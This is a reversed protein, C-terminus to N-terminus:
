RPSGSANGPWLRRAEALLIRSILEDHWSGGFELPNAALINEAERLAARAEGERGLKRYAMAQITFADATRLTIEGTQEAALSNQCAEIAPLYNGSRYEVLGLTVYSYVIAWDSPDRVAVRALGSITALNADNPPLLACAKAAKDAVDPTTTSQFQELLRTSFAHYAQEDGAHVYLPAARLWKLADQPDLAIMEASADIAEQWAGDRAHAIIQAEHEGIAARREVYRSVPIVIVLPLVFITLSSLGGLAAGIMAIRKGTLIVPGRAARMESCAWLGLLFAPIGTFCIGGLSAIGLL